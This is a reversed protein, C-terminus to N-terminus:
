RSLRARLRSAPHASSSLTTSSRPRSPWSPDREKSHRFTSPSLTIQPIPPPNTAVFLQTKTLAWGSTKSPDHWGQNTLVLIHFGYSGDPNIRFRSVPRAAHGQERFQAILAATLSKCDGYGRAYLYPIADWEVTRDYRIGSRYLGRTEPRCRIYIRNIAILGEVLIDLAESNQVEDSLPEATPLGWYLIGDRVRYLKHVAAPHARYVRLLAADCRSIVGQVAQRERPNSGM